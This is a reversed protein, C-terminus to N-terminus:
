NIKSKEILFWGGKMLFSGQYNKLQYAKTVSSSFNCIRTNFSISYLTWDHAAYESTHHQDTQLPLLAHLMSVANSVWGDAKSSSYESCLMLQSLHLRIEGESKTETWQGLSPSWALAGYKWHELPMKKCIHRDYDPIENPIMQVGLQELKTTTQTKKRKKILVHLCRQICILRM